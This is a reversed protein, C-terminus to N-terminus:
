GRTTMSASSIASRRTASNTAAEKGRKHYAILKDIAYDDQQYLNM